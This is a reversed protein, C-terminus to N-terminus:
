RQAGECYWPAGNTTPQEGGKGFLRCQGARLARWREYQAADGSLNSEAGRLWFNLWDINRHYIALRHAPQWKVHYEDPFVYMEVSRGARELASFTEASAGIVEHDAVNLLLPATIRATNHVVSLARWREGYPDSLGWKEWARWGGAAQSMFVNSPAMAASSAIAVTLSPMNFLAYNTAEAGFSLGTLAVRRGDIEGRDVLKQVLADLGAQVRRKEVDDNRGEREYEGWQLVALRNGDEPADVCLVALGQSALPLIPYEDGVGGRLFGSCRYTVMALPLRQGALDNRRVLLGRIPVSPAALADVPVVAYGGSRQTLRENPEYLTRLGGSDLHIAVLRAPKRLEQHLCILEHGSLACDPGLSRTEAVFLRRVTGSRVNWAYLTQPGPLRTESRAFLVEDKRWFVAQFLVGTCEPARCTVSKSSPSLAAVLTVPPLAGQLAPDRAEFWARRGKGDTARPERETSHTREASRTPTRVAGARGAPIEDYRLTRLDVSFNREQAEYASSKSLRTVADRGFDRPMLPRTSLPLSFRSDYLFGSLGERQLEAQARRIDPGANVILSSGDAGVEMHQIEGDFDAVKQTVRDRISTRWLESRGNQDKRYFIAGSDPSWLPKSQTINGNIYGYAHALVPDGADALERVEGTAISVAIWRQAYGNARPDGRRAVFAALRGDPSISLAELDTLTALDEATVGAASTQAWAAQSLGAVFLTLALIVSRVFAM